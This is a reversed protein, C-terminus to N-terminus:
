KPLLDRQKACLYLYTPSVYEESKAYPFAVECLREKFEDTYDMVNLELLDFMKYALKPNNPYKAYAEEAMKKAVPCDRNLGDIIQQQREPDGEGGEGAWHYCLEIADVAESIVKNEDEGEFAWLGSFAFIFLLIIFITNKM